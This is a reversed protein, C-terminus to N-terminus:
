IIQCLMAGRVATTYPTKWYMMPLRLRRVNLVSHEPGCALLQLRDRSESTRPALWARTRCSELWSGDIRLVARWRPKAASGVASAYGKGQIAYGTVTMAKQCLALLQSDYRPDVTVKGNDFYV